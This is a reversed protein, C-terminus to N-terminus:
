LFVFDRETKGRLDMPAPMSDLVEKFQPFVPLSEEEEFVQGELSSKKSVDITDHNLRCRVKASDDKNVTVTVYFERNEIGMDPGSIPLPPLEIAEDPVWYGARRFNTRIHWKEITWPNDLNM